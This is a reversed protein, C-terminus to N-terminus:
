GEARVFGLAQHAVRTPHRRKLPSNVLRNLAAALIGTWPANPAAQVEKWAAVTTKLYHCAVIHEFRGHDFLSDLVEGLFAAPDAVAWEDEDVDGDLYGANRGVFCAIQLLGRPWLEPQRECAARVANSFTIAHTFDLWGINRSVPNDKRDQMALDYHLMNWAAAGLLADYLGEIDGGAAAALDLARNVSLGRFDAAAPRKVGSADWAALAEAYHRFEPILDERRAYVLARILPPVLSQAMGDGMRDILSRTKEVYIISHGFDQYHALAARALPAQLAAFGLGDRLARRALGVAASEDEALIAAVLQDADFRRARGKYPFRPERLTDWALHAVPELMGVLRQAAGRARTERLWLWDAAAAQAHTMGFEYHDRAWGFAHRLGEMEDAGTKDLRALERAMRDYEHVEFAEKLGELAREIRDARSTESLDLWVAGDRVEVPYRRLRDGGVLTEGSELDFKWNHWNCTLVCGDALTAVKLPYGEHPCRNNFAYIGTESKIVAIQRGGHKFIRRGEGELAVLDIAKVWEGATATM